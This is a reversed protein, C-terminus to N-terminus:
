QLQLVKSTSKAYEFAGFMIASFILNSTLTNKLFPLAMTYCSMLGEFTQPYMKGGTWVLFNSVVFFVVTGLLNATLLSTVTVKKLTLIGIAVVLAFCFFTGLDFGFSFTPYWQKYFVNNLVLNSLWLAAMPIIFAWQKKAFYAGGFLAITGVPSFNSLTPAIVALFRFAIAVLIIAVLVGFRLNISNKM